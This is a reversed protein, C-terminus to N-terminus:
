IFTCTFYSSRHCVFKLDSILKIIDWSYKRFTKEDVGAVSAHVNESSYIKLFMFNWLLHIPAENKPIEDEILTWLFCCVKPSTGFYARFRRALTRSLSESTHCLLRGVLQSFTQATVVDDEDM